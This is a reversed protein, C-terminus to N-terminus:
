KIGHIERFQQTHTRCRKKEKRICLCNKRTKKHIGEDNKEFESQSMRNAEVIDEKSPAEGEFHYVPNYIIQPIDDATGPQGNDSDKKIQLTRM